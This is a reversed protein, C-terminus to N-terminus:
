PRWPVLSWASRAAISSLSVVAGGQATLRPAAPAGVRLHHDLWRTTAYRVAADQAERAIAVGWDFLYEGPYRTLTVVVLPAVGPPGELTDVFGASNIRVRYTEDVDEYWGNKGISLRDPGPTLVGFRHEPIVAHMLGLAFATNAPGLLRGSGLLAFFRAWDGATAEIAGWDFPDPIAFGTLGQDRLFGEVGERGGIQAWVQNAADNDSFEIMVPLVGSGAAAAFEGREEAQHLAVVLLLVKALSAAAVPGATGGEFLQNTLPDYIAISVFESAEASRLDLAADFMSLPSSVADRPDSTLNWVLDGARVWGVTGSAFVRYADWNPGGVVAVRTGAALTALTEGGIPEAYLTTEVRTEVTVADVPAFAPTDDLGRRHADLTGLHGLAVEWITGAYEPHYEFRAREFYQVEFGGEVFAESIPYGFIALGGQSEWWRRFQACVNHATAVHYTCDASDLAQVPWFPPEGRRDRTLDAGLLGGLVRYPTGEHEPHYELRAREFYQAIVTQGSETAWRMPESIPYGFLWVGGGAQWATRIPGSLTHGTEPFYDAGAAAARPPRAIPPALTSLALVAALALAAGSRAVHGM